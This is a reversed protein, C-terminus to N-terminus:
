RGAPTGDVLRYEAVELTANRFAESEAVKLSHPAASHAAHADSDRFVEYLFFTGPEEDSRSLEYLLSGPEARCPEVAEGLVAALAEEEGAAAVITAAFVRASM